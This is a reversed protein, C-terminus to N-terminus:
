LPSPRDGEGVGRLERGSPRSSTTRSRGRTIKVGVSDTGPVSFKRIRVRVSAPKFKELVKGAVAEAMAEVLRFSRSRVIEKVERAVAAYDLTKEVRDARGAPKLDLGMRLDIRVEQLRRREKIPVGVHARCRLGEILISDM